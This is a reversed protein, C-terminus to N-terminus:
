VTPAATPVAPAYEIPHDLPRREIFSIYIEGAGTPEPALLILQTATAIV